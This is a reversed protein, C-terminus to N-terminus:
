TGSTGEDDGRGTKDHWRPDTEWELNRERATEMAHEAEKRTAYPGFRDKAPCEPGEEVKRHKLCYYWEGPKGAQRRKFLAM